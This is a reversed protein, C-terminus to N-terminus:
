LGSDIQDVVERETYAWWDRCTQAIISPIQAKKIDDPRELVTVSLGASVHWSIHCHLPWTGPNDARIEIVMYGNSQLIHVDRRMPNDPNIITKGDWRGPGEALLFFNHGHMHMPHPIPPGDNNIIIRISSSSGFNYVNFEPRDDFNDTGTAALLFVPQNFNARFSVNNMSWLFFGTENQGFTISYTETQAPEPEPKIPYWPITKSLDDNACINQVSDLFEPWPTSTPPDLHLADTNFAKPDFSKNDLEEPNQSDNPTNGYPTGPPTSADTTNNDPSHDDPSTNTDSTHDDPTSADTPVVYPTSGVNDYNYHDDPTNTDTPVVYPTSGVAGYNYHDDPTNTDTPVVYPTSGATDYNDRADISVEPEYYVIATADPNRAGSCPAAAISARMLYTKIDSSPLGVILVDTRQGIGLTVVKTEYPIVPVFDNAIVLMVHGDVSFKQVAESGPNILRLRHVKEPTFKFNGIGANNVCPSTDGELKQSCDYNNKGNILNNDSMPATENQNTSVVGEVLDQYNGHYYDSLLIPGLDIDYNETQPGYIVLPGILGDGYQASYHSHYWTTGYLDALFSYTFSKGPAIPCQSVGPVGDMYQENKQLIGHWHLATGEEPGTIANHVTVQITDGWNAEILPGPFQGNVLLMEKEYGDPSRVERTITFDYARIVGTVPPEFPDTNNATKPGWPYGHPMPQPLELLYRTVSVFSFM